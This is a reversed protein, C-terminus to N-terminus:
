GGEWWQLVRIARLTNWRSPEHGSEMRFHERGPHHNQLPWRGTPRRKRQLQEIADSLRKDRKTGAAAFYDLARLIDYHWRPPFSIQTFARDVVEGTRHSKYLEHLLLFERGSKVGARVARAVKAPPETALYAEFGELASITTHFSSHRAGRWRECNFGGDDMVQAALWAAIGDTTPGTVGFYSAMLLVMGNVCDDPQPVTKALNIGGDQYRGADLLRHVGRRGARNGPPLGLRVLQLLTYHTSTWKPSYVANSWGGDPDQRGLLDAGWGRTAVKAREQKWTREARGLLDRQVQWRISPDGELLWAVVESM